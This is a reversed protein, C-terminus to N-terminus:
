PSPLGTTIGMDRSPSVPPKTTFFRGALALAVLFELKIGPYPLDEPPPLAVWELTRAQLIGHVFSGPPSSDTPDCFAVSCAAHVCVGWDRSLSFEM